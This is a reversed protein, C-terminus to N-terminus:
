ETEWVKAGRRLLELLGNGKTDDFDAAKRFGGLAPIDDRASPHSSLRELFAKTVDGAEEPGRLIFPRLLVILESRANVQQKAKFLTGILPIDMLLPVGSEEQSKEERILGGVASIQGDTAVVTTTVARTEVDQSKFSGDDGYEIEVLDGLQSDEQVIRITVSEDSHIRPTILLTMGVNLRETEPDTSTTVVGNESTSHTVDLSTLVTTETGVFVRSAEGDAVCLNPTALRVVDGRSELFQIRGLIDNSVVQLISAEPNLGTGLPLLGAGAGGITSYDNGFSTGLMGTSRGGSVTGSSFLWDVGHAKEDDLELELVKVELLVQPKPRDLHRIADRVEDMVMADTSRLLLSNASRLVALYVVGPRHISADAGGSRELQSLLAEAAMEIEAQKRIAQMDSSDDDDDDDDDDDSSSSSSSSEAFQAREALVDMRELADEIDDIRKDDKPSEWIVRDRFLQRLVEGVSEADLYRPTVVEIIEKEHLSMGQQYESLTVVCTIGTAEDKKYWCQYARCAAELAEAPKVGELYLHVPIESAQKSVIIREGTGQSLLAAFQRFAMGKVTLHDIRRQATEQASARLCFGWLLLFLFFLFIAGPKSRAFQM